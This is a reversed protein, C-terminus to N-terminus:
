ARMTLHTTWWLPTMIAAHVDASTTTVKQPKTEIGVPKMGLLVLAVGDDADLQRVRGRMSRVPSTAARTSRIRLSTGPTAWRSVM